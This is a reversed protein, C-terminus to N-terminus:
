SMQEHHKINQENQMIIQENHTVIKNTFYNNTRTTVINTGLIQFQNNLILFHNKFINNLYLCTHDQKSSRTMLFIITFGLNLISARNLIQLKKIRSNTHMHTVHADYRKRCAYIRQNAPLIRMVIILDDLSSAWM